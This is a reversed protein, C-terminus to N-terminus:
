RKPATDVTGPAATASPNPVNPTLPVNGPYTPTVGQGGPLQGPNGPVQPQGPNPLGYPNYPAVPNTGSYPTVSPVGTTPSPSSGTNSGPTPQTSAPLTALAVREGGVSRLLDLVQVVDNYSATRSAYLVMLNNPNKGHYNKLSEFLQEKSQMQQQEVYVQGFDDLTVILMEQMQPVGSRANPLDVGIAQQRTLQLAALLFFTLICFIVDILPLIEIRADETPVDLNIKM